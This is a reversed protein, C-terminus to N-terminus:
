RCTGGERVYALVKGEDGEAAWVVRLFDAAHLGRERLFGRDGACGYMLDPPM